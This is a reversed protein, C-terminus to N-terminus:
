HLINLIILEVFYCTLIFLILLVNCLIYLVENYIYYFIYIHGLAWFHRVVANLYFWSFFIKFYLMYPLLIVFSFCNQVSTHQTVFSNISKRHSVDRPLGNWLKPVANSFARDNYSVLRTATIPFTEQIIISHHVWGKGQTVTSLCMHGM